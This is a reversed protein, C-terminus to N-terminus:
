GEGSAVVEPSTTCSDPSPLWLTFCSGTGISSEVSLEGGMM